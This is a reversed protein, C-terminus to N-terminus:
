RVVARLLKLGLAVAEDLSLSAGHGWATELGGGIDDRVLGVIVEYRAAQRPTRAYGSTERIAQAAGLLVAAREGRGSAVALGAIAELCGVEGQADAIARYLTLAEGHLRGARDEDGELRALEALAVTADAVSGDMGAARARGLADEFLGRATALDGEDVAIEGRAQLAFPQGDGTM